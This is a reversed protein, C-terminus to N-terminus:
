IIQYLICYKMDLIQFMDFTYTESIYLYSQIYKGNFLSIDYHMRMVSLLRKENIFSTKM